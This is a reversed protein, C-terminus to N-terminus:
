LEEGGSTGKGGGPGDLVLVLRVKGDCEEILLAANGLDLRNVDIVGVMDALAPGLVDPEVTELVSDVRLVAM